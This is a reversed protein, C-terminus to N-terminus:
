RTQSNIAAKYVDLYHKAANDWTRSRVSNAIKHNDWNTNFAKNFIEYINNSDVPNFLLGCGDDVMDPIGGVNSAIVPCGSGLAELVVNPCGERVSPLCFYDCSGMWSSISTHEVKGTFIISEELKLESVQIKLQNELPGDGVIYLKYNFISENNRIKSFADILKSINKEESLRGVYLIIRDELPLSLLKRCAVKDQLNFLKIDVGNQIVTVKHESISEKILVRKLDSSVVTVQKAHDLMGLIAERKNIDFIDQNVDCGLGTAVHPINLKESISDVAVSDPYLWHSNIVDYNDYEHLKSIFHNLKRSMLKAQSSESIKPIMVYKPSHITINDFLYKDPILSFPHWKKLFKFIKFKPFWPLPCLVTVECYKSLAKVLQYTFIGREPDVPTPFLNTVLLVRM